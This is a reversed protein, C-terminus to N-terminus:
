FLTESHAIQKQKTSKVIMAYTCQVMQFIQKLSCKAEEDWVYLNAHYMSM